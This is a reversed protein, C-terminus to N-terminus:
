LQQQREAVLDDTVQLLQFDSFKVVEATIYPAMDAEVLSVILKDEQVARIAIRAANRFVPQLLDARPEFRRETGTYTGVRQWVGVMRFSYAAVLVNSSATALRAKFREELTQRREIAAREALVSEHYERGLRLAAPESRRGM